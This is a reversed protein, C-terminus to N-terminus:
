LLKHNDEKKFNKAKKCDAFHSQFVDKRIEIVPMLSGSKTVGFWIKAGCGKCKTPRNLDIDVEAGGELKIKKM